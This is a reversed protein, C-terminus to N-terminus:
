MHEPQLWRADADRWRALEISTKKTWASGQAIRLIILQPFLAISASWVLFITLNVTVFSDVLSIAVEIVGLTACPAASEILIAVFNTYLRKNESHTSKRRKSLIKCSIMITVMINVATTLAISAATIQGDLRSNTSLGIPVTALSLGFAAICVLIPFIVIPLRSGFIIYCRYILLTDALFNSIDQAINALITYSFTTTSGDQFQYYQAAPDSTYKNRSSIWMAQGLLPTCLFFMTNLVLLISGYTIYITARLRTINTNKMLSYNSLFYVGLYIGYLISSLIIGIYSSGEYQLYITRSSM